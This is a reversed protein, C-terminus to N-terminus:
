GYVVERRKLITPILYGAVFLMSGLVAWGAVGFSLCLTTLAIPAFLGGLGMGLSWVAQYQGQLADPAVGYAIGFASAAQNLEGIVHVVSAIMLVIAALWPNDFFTSLSYSFVGIGLWYSGRRALVAAGTVTEAGAAYRVQFIVVAVTNMVMLISLVWIPASTHNLIWLPLAIDVVHYHFASIANTFALLLFNKDRMAETRRFDKAEKLPYFKPLKMFTAAAFITTFGDIIIVVRYFQPNDVALVFGALLTGVSIGLNVLSRVYARIRVRGDPGGIRSLVVARTTNSARDAISSLASFLVFWMFSDAFALLMSFVGCLAMLLATINRAETTDAFRGIVVGAVLGCGAAISFGVGLETASLGVVRTFYV